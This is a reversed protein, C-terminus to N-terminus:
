YTARIIDDKFALFSVVREDSDRAIDLIKSIKGELERAYLQAEDIQKDRLALQRKLRGVDANANELKEWLAPQAESEPWVIDGIDKEDVEPEGVGKGRVYVEVMGSGDCVRCRAGEIEGGRGECEGCKQWVGVRPAAPAELDSVRNTLRRIVSDMEDLKGQTGVDVMEVVEGEKGIAVKGKSLNDVRDSIENRWSILSDIREDANKIERRLEKILSFDIGLNSLAIEIATLQKDQDDVRKYLDNDVEVFAICSRELNDVRSDLVLRRAEISELTGIRRELRTADGVREALAVLASAVARTAIVQEASPGTDDESEGVDAVRLLRKAEELYGM